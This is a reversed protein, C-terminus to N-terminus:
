DPFKEAASRVAAEDVPALSYLVENVRSLDNNTLILGFKIWTLRLSGGDGIRKALVPSLEWETPPETSWPSSTEAETWEVVGYEYAFDRAVEERRRDVERCARWYNEQEPSDDPATVTEGGALTEVRVTPPPPYEFERGRQVAIVALPPVPRARIWWGSDLRIEQM